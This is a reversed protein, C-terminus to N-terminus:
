SEYKYANRYKLEADFIDPSPDEVPQIMRLLSSKIFLDADLHFAGGAPEGDMGFNRPGLHLDKGETKLFAVRSLRADKVLDEANLLFQLPRPEIQHNFPADKCLDNEAIAGLAGGAEEPTGLQRMIQTGSDAHPSVGFVRVAGLLDEAKVGDNIGRDFQREPYFQGHGAEDYGVTV